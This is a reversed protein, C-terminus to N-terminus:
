RVTESIGRSTEKREAKKKETASETFKKVSGNAAKMIRYLGSKGGVLLKNSSLGWM